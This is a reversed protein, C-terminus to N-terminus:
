VVLSITYFYRKRNQVDNIDLIALHNFKCLRTLNSHNVVVFSIGYVFDTYGIMLLHPTALSAWYKKENKLKPLSARLTRRIKTSPVVALCSESSTGLGRTAALPLLPRAISSGFRVDFLKARSNVGIRPSWNFAVGRDPEPLGLGRVLPSKLRPLTSPRRFMSKFLIKLRLTSRFGM